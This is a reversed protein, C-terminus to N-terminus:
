FAVKTFTHISSEQAKALINKVVRRYTKEYLNTIYLALLMARGLGM